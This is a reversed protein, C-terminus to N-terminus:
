PSGFGHGRRELAATRQLARGNSSHLGMCQFCALKNRRLALASAMPEFGTSTGFKKKEPSNAIVVAVIMDENLNINGCNMDDEHKM